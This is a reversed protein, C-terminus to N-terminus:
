LLALQVEFRCAIRVVEAALKVPIEPVSSRIKPLIVM